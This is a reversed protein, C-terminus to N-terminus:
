KEEKNKRLTYSESEVLYKEYLGDTKLRANDLRKTKGRTLRWKGAEAYDHDDDLLGTLYDKLIGKIEELRSNLPTVQEEITEYELMLEDIDTNDDHKVTRLVKLIDSDKKEDYEPSEGTLVHKEWWDIAFDVYQQFQPYRESVKFDYTITNDISVEFDEPHAYDSEELFSCVMIVEDIGLLYAYLSAQLAYYDPPGSSWDEARKTTKIEIVTNIKKKEIIVADWMGGLVKHNKFFDGHTKKFPDGGYYEEASTIPFYRKLYEIVKPEIVKGARTYQNDVFPEEYTRTIECWVKFPSKWVDLGLIAAFRTGTLKKPKKPADVKINPM